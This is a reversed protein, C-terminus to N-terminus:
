VVYKPLTISLPVFKTDAIHPPMAQKLVKSLGITEDLPPLTETNSKGFFGLFKSKVSKMDVGLTKTLSCKIRLSKDKNALELVANCDFFDPIQVQYVIESESLYVVDVDKFPKTVLETFVSSSKNNYILEEPLSSLKHQALNSFHIETIVNDQYYEAVRLNFIKESPDKTFSIYVIYRRPIPWVFNSFYFDSKYKNESAGVYVITRKQKMSSSEDDLNFNWKFNTKLIDDKNEEKFTYNFASNDKENYVVCTAEINVAKEDGNAGTTKENNEQDKKEDENKKDENKKDEDKKDENKKITNEPRLIVDSPFRVSMGNFSIVTRTDDLKFSTDDPKTKCEELISFLKGENLDRLSISRLVKKDDSTTLVVQKGDPLLFFKKANPRNCEKLKESAQYSIPIQTLTPYGKMKIPNKKISYEYREESGIKYIAIRKSETECIFYNGKFESEYEKENLIAIRNPIIGPFTDKVIIFYIQFFRIRPKGESLTDMYFSEQIEVEFRVGEIHIDRLYRNRFDNENVAVCNDDMKQRECIFVAYEIKSDYISIQQTFENFEITFGAATNSETVARDFMWGGKPPIIYFQGPYLIDTISKTSMIKLYQLYNARLPVPYGDTKVGMLSFAKLDLDTLTVKSKALSKFFFSAMEVKRKPKDTFDDSSLDNIETYVFKQLKVSYAFKDFSISTVDFFDDRQHQNLFQNFSTVISRSMWNKEHNMSVVNIYYMECMKVNGNYSEFSKVFKVDCFLAKTLRIHQFEIVTDCRYAKSIYSNIKQDSNEILGKVVMSGPETPYVYGTKNPCEKGALREIAALLILSRIM